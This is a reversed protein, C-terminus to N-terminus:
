EPEKGEPLLGFDPRVMFRFTMKGVDRSEQEVLPTLDPEGASQLRHRVVVLASRAIVSETALRHLLHRIDKHPLPGTLMSYPPDVFVLEYQAPVDPLVPPPQYECYSAKGEIVLGENVINLLDLNKRLLSATVRDQEIFLCYRAGRSLAEFGLTGSGAFLDLVALPPLGGPEYLRHGLIDFLVTKARDLIPRTTRGEPAAIQRSRWKGAIIRM